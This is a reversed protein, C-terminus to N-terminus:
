DCQLEGAKEKVLQRNYIATDVPANISAANHLTHTNSILVKGRGGKLLVNKGKRENEYM